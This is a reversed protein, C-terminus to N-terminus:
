ASPIRTRYMGIVGSRMMAAMFSQAWGTRSQLHRDVFIAVSTADGFAYDRGDQQGSHFAERGSFLRPRDCRKLALGCVFDGITSLV